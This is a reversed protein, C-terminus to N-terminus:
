RERSARIVTPIAQKSLTTLSVPLPTEVESDPQAQLNVTPPWRGVYAFGRSKTLEPCYFDGAPATQVLPTVHSLMVTPLQTTCGLAKLCPTNKTKKKLEQRCLKLSPLPAAAGCRGTRSAAMCWDTSTVM